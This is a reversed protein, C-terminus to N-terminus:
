LLRGVLAIVSMHLVIFLPVKVPTKYFLLKHSLYYLFYLVRMIIANHVRSFKM